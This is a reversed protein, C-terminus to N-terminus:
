NSNSILKGLVKGAGAGVVTGLIPLGVLSGAVGGMVTSVSVMVAEIVQEKTLNPSNGVNSPVESTTDQLILDKEGDKYKKCSSQSISMLRLISPKRKNNERIRGVHAVFEHCKFESYDSQKNYYKTELTMYKWHTLQLLQLLPLPCIPNALMKEIKARLVQEDKTSIQYQGEDDKMLSSVKTFLVFAYPIIEKFMSLFEQLVMVKSQDFGRNTEIVIGVAPVGNCALSAAHFLEGVNISTPSLANMFGPTDIIQVSQQAIIATEDESETTVQGFAIATYFAKKGIFFNGAASKGAGVHGTLIVSLVHEAIFFINLWM